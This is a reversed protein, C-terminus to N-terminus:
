PFHPYLIYIKAIEDGANRMVQLLGIGVPFDIEGNRRSDAGAPVLPKEPNSEFVEEGVCPLEGAARWIRADFEAGPVFVVLASEKDAVVAGAKIHGVGVLEEGRKLTQVGAMFKRTR